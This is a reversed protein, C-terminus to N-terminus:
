YISYSCASFQINDLETVSCSAACVLHGPELEWGAKESEEDLIEKNFQVYLVNKKM